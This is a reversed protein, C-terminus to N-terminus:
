HLISLIASRSFFSRALHYSYIGSDHFTESKSLPRPIVIKKKGPPFRCVMTTSTSHGSDNIMVVSLERPFFVDWLRCVYAYLYM